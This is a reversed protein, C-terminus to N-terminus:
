NQQHTKNLRCLKSPFKRGSRSSKLLEQVKLLTPNDSLDKQLIHYIVIKRLKNLLPTLERRSKSLLYRSIGNKIELSRVGANSVKLRCFSDVFEVDLHKFSVNAKSKSKVKRNSHSVHNVTITKKGTIQCVGSM